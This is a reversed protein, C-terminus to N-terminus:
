IRRQIGCVFIVMVVNLVVDCGNWCWTQWVMLARIKKFMM